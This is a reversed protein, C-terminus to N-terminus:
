LNDRQKRHAEASYTLSESQLKKIERAVKAKDFNERFAPPLLEIDSTEAIALQTWLKVDQTAPIVLRLALEIDKQTIKDRDERSAIEYSKIMAAEIDSGVWDETQTALKEYDMKGTTEYGYRRVIAPFIESREFTDPPIFPIIKDFRGRRKLAADMMDPRNTAAIWLVRGRLTTDSMFELLMKFLRDSVGSDGHSGRNVAQDIEDMFVVVPVLSRIAMLAKAMNHESQGILSGMLKGIDFKVMNMKAEYALAMAFISKGTGPAGTYLLGQPCAKTNGNLMPTLVGRTHYDKLWQMGGVVGFGQDPDISELVSQFEQKFIESKRSKILEAGIPVNIHEATLKIDDINLKRLGATLHAFKQKDFGEEFVLGGTKGAEKNNVQAIKDLHEIFSAREEQAPLLIEVSEIRSSSATLVSNLSVMSDAILIIPNNSNSIQPSKALNLLKVICNRDESQLSSMEGAPFISEAYDIVFATHIKRNPDSEARRDLLLIKEVHSFVTMIDRPLIVDTKDGLVNKTVSPTKGLGALTIFLDRMENTPFHLGTARDFFIILDFNKHGNIPQQLMRTLFFDLTVRNDALDRVNGSIIYTHAIGAKFKLRFQQSWDLATRKELVTAATPAPKASVSM